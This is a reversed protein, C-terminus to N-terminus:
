FHSAEAVKSGHHADRSTVGGVPERLMSAVVMDFLPAIRLSLTAKTRKFFNPSTSDEM